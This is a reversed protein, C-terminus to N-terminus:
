FASFGTLERGVVLEHVTETGEYTIVSELNMAHRLPSHDLNIGGAGLLDRADRAVDLAMRVNNWKALSVQAPRLRGADKLQGLRLALLQGTAIRRAMEALRRQVTQTHALPRGFLKRGRTFELATGFCDLAAGVAGWAIGYRAQNLCGLPAGLGEAGPLRAAEPVRVGELTLEATSSARLSYKRELTRAGYGPTGREVLFGRIGQETRAYVVALEALSGNTIWMKSGDLVWDDGHRKATTRMAAPDSGGHRESLGFCGVAEGGAMPPLWRQKQEESGYAHISYMALSTQVSVFSRIASDVAELEQCIVGYATHGLGPCGYGELNCGLAGLAALGPVLERPFRHEDFARAIVPRAQEDMVRRARQALELEHQGLLSRVDLFDNPDLPNM